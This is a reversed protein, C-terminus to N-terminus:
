VAGGRTESEYGEATNGFKRGMLDSVLYVTLEVTQEVADRPYFYTSALILSQELLRIPHCTFEILTSLM